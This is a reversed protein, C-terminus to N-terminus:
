FPIDEDGWNSPPGAEAVLTKIVAQIEGQLAEKLLSEFEEIGRALRGKQDGVLPRLFAPYGALPQHLELLSVRYNGLRPVYADLHYIREGDDDTNILDIRGEIVGKTAKGLLEAQDRFITFPSRHNADPAVNGWMSERDAM